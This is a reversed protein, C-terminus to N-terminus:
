VRFPFERKTVLILLDLWKRGELRAVAPPCGVLDNCVKADLDRGLGAFIGVVLCSRCGAESRQSLRKQWFVRLRRAEGGCSPWVELLHRSGYIDATMLACVVLLPYEPDFQEVLHVWSTLRM